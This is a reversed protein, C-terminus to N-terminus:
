ATLFVGHLSSVSLSSSYSPTTILTLGIPFASEYFWNVLTPVGSSSFALIVGFFSFYFTSLDMLLDVTKM